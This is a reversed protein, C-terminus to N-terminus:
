VANAFLKELPEPEAPPFVCRLAYETTQEVRPRDIDSEAVAWCDSETPNSLEIRFARVLYTKAVIDWGRFKRSAWRIFRFIASQGDEAQVFFVSKPLLEGADYFAIVYNNASENDTRMTIM